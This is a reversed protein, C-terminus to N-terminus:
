TKICALLAVNRPRTEVGTSPDTATVAAAAPSLHGGGSTGGVNGYPSVGTGGNLAHTHAEVDSAQASGFVRAADIGRSDDWGRVFEGRLEPLNFTTSGDGTGFVTGIRAFLPAYTTRSVAQGKCELWGSPPANVAFYAVVGVFMAQFTTAATSTQAANAVDSVSKLLTDLSSWNANLHGGWADSDAGVEPLTWSFNPTTGNAM